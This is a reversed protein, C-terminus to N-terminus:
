PRHEWHQGGRGPNSRLEERLAAVAQEIAALRADLRAHRTTRANRMRCRDACFGNRRRGRITRGCQLCSHGESATTRTAPAEEGSGQADARNATNVGNQADSGDGTLPVTTDRETHKVSAM